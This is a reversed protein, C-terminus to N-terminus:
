PRHTRLAGTQPQIEILFYDKLNGNEAAGGPSSYLTLYWNEDERLDMRGSPLFQFAIYSVEDVIGAFSGSEAIEKPLRMFSTRSVDSHIYVDSEFRLVKSIPIWNEENESGELIWMARFGESAEATQPLHYFRVEVRRNKSIATQHALSLQGLVMEGTQSLKMSRLLKSVPTIMVTSVIGIIALVVLLEVLSFGKKKKSSTKLFSKM